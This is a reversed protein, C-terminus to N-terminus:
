NYGGKDIEVPDELVSRTERIFDEGEKDNGYKEKICNAIRNRADTHKRVEIRFRLEVLSLQFKVWGVAVQLHRKKGKHKTASSGEEGNSETRESGRREKAVVRDSRGDTIEGDSDGDNYESANGLKCEAFNWELFEVHRWCEFRSKCAARGVASSVPGILTLVM